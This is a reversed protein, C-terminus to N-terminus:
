MIRKHGDAATKIYSSCCSRLDQVHAIKNHRTARSLVAAARKPTYNKPLDIVVRSTNSDDSM